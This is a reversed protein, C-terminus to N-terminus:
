QVTARGVLTEEILADLLGIAEERFGADLGMDSASASAVIFVMAATMAEGNSVRREGAVAEVANVIADHIAQVTEPDPAAPEHSM